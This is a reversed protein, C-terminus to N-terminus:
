SRMWPSFSRTRVKSLSWIGARAGGWARRPNATDTEKEGESGFRGWLESVKASGLRKGMRRECQKDGFGSVDPSTAGIVASRIGGRDRSVDSESETAAMGDDRGHDRGGERVVKTRSRSNEDGKEKVLLKGIKGRKGSFKVCV